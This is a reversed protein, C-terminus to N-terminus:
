SQEEGLPAIVLYREWEEAMKNDSDNSMLTVPVTSELRAEQDKSNSRVSLELVPEGAEGAAGQTATQPLDVFMKLSGRGDQMVMTATALSDNLQNGCVSFPLSEFMVPLSTSAVIADTLDGLKSCLADPGDTPEAYRFTGERRGVQLLM